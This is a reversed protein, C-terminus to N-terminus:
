ENRLYGEWNKDVVGSHPVEQEVAAEGQWMLDRQREVQRQTERRRAM